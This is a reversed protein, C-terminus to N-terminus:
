FWAKVGPNEKKTKNIFNWPYKVKDYERVQGNPYKVYVTYGGPKFSLPNERYQDAVKFPM